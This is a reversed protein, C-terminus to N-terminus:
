AAGGIKLWLLVAVLFGFVALVEPLVIYILINKEMEPREAVTGLAAAGLTGQSWAAALASLGMAIGAGIALGGESTLAAIAEAM